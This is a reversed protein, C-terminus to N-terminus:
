GHLMPQIGRWFYSPDDMIGRYDLLRVFLYKYIVAILSKRYHWFVSIDFAFEAFM